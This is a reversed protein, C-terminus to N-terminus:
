KIVELYTRKDKQKLEILEPENDDRHMRELEYDSRKHM